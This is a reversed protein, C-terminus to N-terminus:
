RVELIKVSADKLNVAASVYGIAGPHKAVYKVIEDDSGLEPPPVGRGSFVLRNWYTRVAAISRGIVQESFQKRVASDRKLDVPMIVTENGWQTRKKLFMDAITKNDLATANNRANVIVRFGPEAGVASSRTAFSGVILAVVLFLRSGRM